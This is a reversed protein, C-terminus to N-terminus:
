PCKRDVQARGGEEYEQKSVWRSLSLVFNFQISNLHCENLKCRSSPVSPRSFLDELGHDM